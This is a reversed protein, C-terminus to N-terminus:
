FFKIQDDSAKEETFIFKVINKASKKSVKAGMFILKKAIDLAKQAKDAEGTKFTMYDFISFFEDLKGKPTNEDITKTLNELILIKDDASSDKLARSISYVFGIFDLAEINSSESFDGFKAFNQVESLKSIEICNAATYKFLLLAINSAEKKNEFKLVLNLSDFFAKTYEKEYKGHMAYIYALTSRIIFFEVAKKTDESCEFNSNFTEMINRELPTGIYKAYADHKEALGNM